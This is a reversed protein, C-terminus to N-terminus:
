AVRHMEALVAERIRPRLGTSTVLDVDRLLLAELDEKLGMFRSFTPDGVFTVIFDVDSDPKADGRAFSGFLDLHLVGYREMLEPIAPQLTAIIEQRDM